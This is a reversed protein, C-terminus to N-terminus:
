KSGWSHVIPRHMREIIDYRQNARPYFNNNSGDLVGDVFLDNIFLELIRYYLGLM